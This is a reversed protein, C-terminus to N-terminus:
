GRPDDDDRDLGRIMLDIGLTFQEHMNCRGCFLMALRLLHDPADCPVMETFGAWRPCNM